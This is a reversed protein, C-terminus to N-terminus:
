RYFIQLETILGAADLRFVDAAFLPKADPESVRSTASLVALEGGDLPDVSQLTTVAQGQFVVSEYFGRLEDHGAYTGVPHRLVAGEAFLALLADGDGANVADVYQEAVSM